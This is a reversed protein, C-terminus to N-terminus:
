EVGEGEHLEFGAAAGSNWSEVAPCDQISGSREPYRGAFTAYLEAKGSSEARKWDRPEDTLERYVAEARQLLEQDTLAFRYGRRRVQDAVALWEAIPFDGESRSAFRQAILNRFDAEQGSLLDRDVEALEWELRSRLRASEIVPIMVGIPLNPELACWEANSRPSHVSAKRENVMRKV